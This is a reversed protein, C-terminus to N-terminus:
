RAVQLMTSRAAIEVIFSVRDEVYTRWRSTTEDIVGYEESLISFKPDDLVNMRNELHREILMLTPDNPLIKIPTFSDFVMAKTTCSARCEVVYAIMLYHDERCVSEHLVVPCEPMYAIGKRKKVEMITFGDDTRRYRLLRNGPDLYHLSNATVYYSPEPGMSPVYFYESRLSFGPDGWTFVPPSQVIEELSLSGAAEDREASLPIAGSGGEYRLSPSACGQLALLLAPLVLM